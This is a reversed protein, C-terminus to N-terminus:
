RRRESVGERGGKKRDREREIGREKKRGRGKGGERGEEREGERGGEREGERWLDEGTQSLVSFKRDFYFCSDGKLEEDLVLLSGLGKNFRM